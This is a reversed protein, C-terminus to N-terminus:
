VPKLGLLKITLLWMGVAAQFGNSLLVRVVYVAFIPFTYVFGAVALGYPRMKPLPAQTAQSEELQRICQDASPFGDEKVGQPNPTIGEGCWRCALTYSKDSPLSLAAIALAAIDARGCRGPIPLTGTADLQLHTTTRNRIEDLLGGPRLVVYPLESQALAQECLMSWRTTFSLLTNVLINFPNFASLSLSLGTLRVFRKVDHSKALQMLHKQGMYNGYYPHDRKAWASVDQNFIRWPLFDTVKCFRLAGMVSIIACCGKVAQDLEEAYADYRGVDAIVVELRPYELYTATGFLKQAKDAERCLARVPRNQGMLQQVVLRGVKGTAGVVLIPKDHNDNSATSSIAALSICPATASLRRNNPIWASAQTVILLALFSIFLAQKAFIPSMPSLEDWAQDSKHQQGSPDL